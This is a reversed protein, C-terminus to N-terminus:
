KIREKYVKVPSYPFKIYVRSEYCTFYSKYEKDDEDKMVDYFIIGEIDYAKGNEKFVHSCRNNQYTEPNDNILNWECDEGTLPAIPEFDALKKFLEITYSASTGSHGEGAFEKLLKLVHNCIMEQMDDKFKNNEDIWGAARFEKWAHREYNDMM